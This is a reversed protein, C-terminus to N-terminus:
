FESASCGVCQAEGGKFGRPRIWLIGDNDEEVAKLFQQNLRECNHIEYVLGREEVHWANYSTSDLDRESPMM